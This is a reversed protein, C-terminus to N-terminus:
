LLSEIAEEVSDFIQILGDIRTVALIDKCIDNPSAVRADGGRKSLDLVVDLIKDLGDSDIFPVHEIDIVIRLFDSDICEQVHTDFADWEGGIFAGTLSLVRVPGRHSQAVEVAIGGTWAM